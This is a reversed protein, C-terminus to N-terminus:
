SRPLYTVHECVTCVKRESGGMIAGAIGHALDVLYAHPTDRGCRECHEIPGGIRGAFRQARVVLEYLNQVSEMIEPPSGEEVYFQQGVHSTLRLYHWQGTSPVFGFRMGRLNAGIAAESAERTDNAEQFISFGEYAAYGEQPKWRLLGASTLQILRIVDHLSVDDEALFTHPPMLAVDTNENTM